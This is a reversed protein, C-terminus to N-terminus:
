HIRFQLTITTDMEQPVNDRKFPEYRWQRVAAKAADGLVPDGKVQRILALTGDKAIRAHLVVDGQIRDRLALLPYKPEIRRLLTGGTLVTAKRLAPTETTAPLVIGPLKTSATLQVVPAAVPDPMEPARANNRLLVIVGDEAVPRASATRRLHAKTARSSEGAVPSKEESAPIDMSSSVQPPLTTMDSKVPAPTANSVNASTALHRWAMSIMVVLSAVLLIAWWPRKVNGAILQGRLSLPRGQRERPAVDTAPQEDRTASKAANAQPPQVLTGSADSSATILEASPTSASRRRSFEGASLEATLGAIRAVLWQHDEQFAARRPSFVELVGGVQEGHLVPVILSSRLKLERCAEPDVRPDSETDQCYIIKGTRICEGTLGSASGIQVGVEPALGASARCLMENPEGLAIAAGNAETLDLLRTVVFPLAEDLKLREEVIHSKIENLQEDRLPFKRRQGKPKESAPSAPLTAIWQKLALASKEDLSKLQVGAQSDMVWRVKGPCEIRATSDPLTFALQVEQAARLETLPYVGIGNESVNFMLGFGARGLEVTVLDSDAVTRRGQLRDDGAIMRQPSTASAAM